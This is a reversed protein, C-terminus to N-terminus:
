HRFSVRQVPQGPQVLTAEAPMRNADATRL